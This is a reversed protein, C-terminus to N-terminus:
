TRVEAHKPSYNFARQYRDIRQDVERLVALQEALKRKDADMQDRRLPKESRVEVPRPRIIGGAMVFRKSATM